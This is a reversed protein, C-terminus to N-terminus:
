DTVEYYFRLEDGKLNDICWSDIDKWLEDYVQAFKLNGAQYHEFIKHNLVMSLETIMKYDDKWLCARKYTDRVADVGFADAITFDSWFTTRVREPM